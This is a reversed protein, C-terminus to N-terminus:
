IIFMIKKSNYNKVAHEERRLVMRKRMDPAIGPPVPGLDLSNFERFKSCYYHAMCLFTLGASITGASLAAAKQILAVNDSQVIIKATTKKALSAGLLSIPAILVATFIFSLLIRKM